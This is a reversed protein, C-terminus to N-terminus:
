SEGLAKMIKRARSTVNRVTEGTAQRPDGFALWYTMDLAEAIADAERKAGHVIAIRRLGRVISHNATGASEVGWLNNSM